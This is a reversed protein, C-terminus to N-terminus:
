HALAGRRLAITALILGCLAYAVLVLTNLVIGNTNLTFDHFAHQLVVIAYYVPFVRAVLQEIPAFFSIPGFPGSLFFLPVCLGIALTSLPTRRKLSTGLLTGWAAFLALILLTFGILEGWHVPWVGLVLILATLVVAAGLLAILFAALMKGLLIAVRSAPSLLLEKMTGREWEAAAATGAQIMGGVMLGIVLIPVALFPIYDLTQPYADREEPAITVVSPEAKAYFSTIALPVARRIDNTFDTNLNNITVGVSVSQHAEVRADFDAPITVVAVIKGEHLLANAQSVTARQLAFSHAQQMSTYFQQAQPGTDLMVVATPAQGGSVVLLSMLVLVNLPLIISVLTFLPETRASKLDKNMCAWLVRLFSLCTRM